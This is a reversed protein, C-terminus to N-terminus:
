GFRESDRLVLPKVVRNWNESWSGWEWDDGEQHEHNHVHREVNLPVQLARQLNTRLSDLASSSPFSTLLTELHEALQSANRFVLGNIGDRVLEPLCAFDLACVPLGCGFMDVIKMPLDLASSSSHLSIGLDASGLLLPYDEAELWLSTCRVYQWNKQLLEVEAMYREKLPGKGTIVMWIRPLVQREKSDHKSQSNECNAERARSEYLKLAELLIGFDEDPTWSTSSVLLAPRDKRLSPSTPSSSARSTSYPLLGLIETFQTAYPPSASPLFDVLSPSIPRGLRIFLEHVELPVCKHFHSPPRDHLVAKHGILGWEQELHNRMANTVFLHAYASRGFIIEFRKAINVLLHTEGLRLALISYGLNHWDIIVKSGMIGGVLWVLALTPISPPNQVMIFEPPRPIDFVLTYLITAIQYLIKIPAALVFPIRTVLPPPESLYSLRINSLSTLSLIPKSGKYGILYTDFELKAFSEAHYMMRPSRGVDGLVLIAVSRLKPTQRVKQFVNVVLFVLLAFFFLAAFIFFDHFDRSKNSDM